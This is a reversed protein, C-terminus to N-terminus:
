AIKQGDQAFRRFLRFDRGMPQHESGAHDTLLGRPNIREKGEAQSNEVLNAPDDPLLLVAGARDFEEHRRDLGGVQPALAPAVVVVTLLHQPDLIPVLAFHQETRGVLFHDGVNEAGVNAGVLIQREIEIVQLPFEAVLHPRAKAQHAAAFKQHLVGVREVDVEFARCMGVVAHEDGIQPGERAHPELRDRHHGIGPRDAAVQRVFEDDEGFGALAFHIAM